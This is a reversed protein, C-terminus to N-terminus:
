PNLPKRAKEDEMVAWGWGWAALAACVVSFVAAIPVCCLGTMAASVAAVQERGVEGLADLQARSLQGLAQEYLGTSSLVLQTAVDFAGDMLGAVLGALAGAGIYRERSLPPKLWIAALVGIAPYALLTPICLLLGATTRSETPLVYAVVGLAGLGVLVVGGVLGAKLGAAMASGKKDVTSPVLPQQNVM